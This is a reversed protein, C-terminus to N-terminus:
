CFDDEVFITDAYEEFIEEDTVYDDIFALEGYSVNENNMCYYHQKVQELQERNLEKINM